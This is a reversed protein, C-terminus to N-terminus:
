EAGTRPIVHIAQAKILVSVTAGERLQLQERAPQTVLAVLDFGCFLGVRVLPGDVTVSTVTATLQNRASTLRPQQDSGSLLIVEEGRICVTAPGEEARPAVATLEASGIRVTALGEAARLVRASAVTEVGVMRAVDRDAPRSFVETLPGSQRVGGRYMIIAWDGLAAAELRDHTVVLCPVGLDVLLGRLERRLEDRTMADLASLPEDLLLLRPRRAVARALAVRQQQGGSLQSPLRRGLGILQFRDMLEAVAARRAARTLARLGFGINDEVCLHPFLAYDQHLYGVQRRQPPLCIGQPADLWTEDRWRILGVEPRELGALCRLVTTKGCGSPGFLVTVSFAQAPREVRARITAGSRFRKEFDAVLAESM